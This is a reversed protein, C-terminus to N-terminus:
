PQTPSSITATIVKGDDGSLQYTPVIAGAVTPLMQIGPAAKYQDDNLISDSAGFDVTKATIQAIGGGSGISQYNFKATPDVFAYEYFWRSYLPFPFTAGAGNITVAGAKPADTPKPGPTPTIVKEVVTTKEVVVTQVLPASPAPAACASVIAAFVIVAAIGFLNKLKFM